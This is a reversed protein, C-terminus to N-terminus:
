NQLTALYGVPSSSVHLEFAIADDYIAVLVAHVYRGGIEQAHTLDEAFFPSKWVRLHNSRLKDPSTCQEIASDFDSSRVAEGPHWEHLTLGVGRGFEVCV